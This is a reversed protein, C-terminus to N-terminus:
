LSRVLGIIAGLQGPTLQPSRLNDSKLPARKYDHRHAYRWRRYHTLCMGRAYHKRECGEASCIKM